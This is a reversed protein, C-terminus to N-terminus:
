LSNPESSLGSQSVKCYSYWGINLSTFSVFVYQLTRVPTMRLPAHAGAGQIVRNLTDSFMFRLEGSYCYVADIKPWWDLHSQLFPSFFFVRCLVHCLMVYFSVTMSTLFNQLSVNTIIRHLSNVLVFHFTSPSSAALCVKLFFSVNLKASLMQDSYTTHM